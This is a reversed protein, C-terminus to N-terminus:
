QSAQPLGLRGKAQPKIRIGVSKSDDVVVPRKDVGVLHEGERQIMQGSVALPRARHHARNRGTMQHVGHRSLQTHLHVLRRHAEFVDACQHLALRDDDAPFFATAQAYLAV